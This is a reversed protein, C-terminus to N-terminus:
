KYRKSDFGKLFTLFKLSNKGETGQSIVVRWKLISIGRLFNNHIQIIDSATIQTSPRKM